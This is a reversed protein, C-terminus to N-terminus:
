RTFQFGNSVWPGTVLGVLSLQIVRSELWVLPLRPISVRCNSLFPQSFPNCFKQGAKSSKTEFVNPWTIGHQHESFQHALEDVVYFGSLHRNRHPKTRMCKSVTYMRLHAIDDLSISPWKRKGQLAKEQRVGWPLLRFAALKPCLKTNRLRFKFFSRQIGFNLVGDKASVGM